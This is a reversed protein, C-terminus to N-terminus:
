FFGEISDCCDIEKSASRAFIQRNITADGNRILTQCIITSLIYWDKCRRFCGSNYLLQAKRVDSANSM